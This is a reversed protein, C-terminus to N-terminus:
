VYDLFDHLGDTLERTQECLVKTKIDCIQDVVSKFISIRESHFPTQTQNASFSIYFSRFTARRDM